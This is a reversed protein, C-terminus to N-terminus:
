LRASFGLLCEKGLMQGRARGVVLYSIRQYTKILDDTNEM